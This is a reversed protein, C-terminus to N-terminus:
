IREQGYTNLDINNEAAEQIGKDLHDKAFSYAATM